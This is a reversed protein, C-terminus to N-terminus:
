GGFLRTNISILIPNTAIQYFNIDQIRVEKKDDIGELNRRLLFSTRRNIISTSLSAGVLVGINQALFWASGAIAIDSHELSAALHVFTTSQIIGMGM